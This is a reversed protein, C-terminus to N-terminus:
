ILADKLVALAAKVKRLEELQRQAETLCDIRAEIWELVNNPDDANKWDARARCLEWIAHQIAAHPTMQPDADTLGEPKETTRETM